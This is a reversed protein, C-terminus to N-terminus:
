PMSAGGHPQMAKPAETFSSDPRASFSFMYFARLWDDECRARWTNQFTRQPQPPRDGPTYRRPLLLLLTHPRALCKEPPDCIGWLIALVGHCSRLGTILMGSIVPLHMSSAGLVSHRHGIGDCDIGILM